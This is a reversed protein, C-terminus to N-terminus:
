TSSHILVQGGAFRTVYPWLAFPASCRGCASMFRWANLEPGGWWRGFSMTPLKHGTEAQELDAWLAASDWGAVVADIDPIQVLEYREGCWACRTGAVRGAGCHRCRAM